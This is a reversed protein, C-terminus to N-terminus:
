VGKFILKPLILSIQPFFSIILAALILPIFFPVFSKFTEEYTIGATKSAVYLGVAAPPTMLGILTTYSMIVGFHVLNVGIEKMLPVLIPTTILLVPLPDIISGLLILAGNVILLVVYPNRSLSLIAEAVEHPMRTATFIWGM